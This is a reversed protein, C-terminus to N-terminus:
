GTPVDALCAAGRDMQSVHLGPAAAELSAAATERLRRLEEEIQLVAPWPYSRFLARCGSCRWCPNDERHRCLSPVSACICIGHAQTVRTRRLKRYVFCRFAHAARCSASVGVDRM